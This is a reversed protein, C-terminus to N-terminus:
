VTISNLESIKTNVQPVKINGFTMDKKSKQKSVQYIKTIDEEVPKEATTLRISESAEESVPDNDIVASIQKDVNKSDM